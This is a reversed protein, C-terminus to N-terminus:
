YHTRMGLPHKSVRVKAIASESGAIKWNKGNTDEFALSKLESDNHNNEDRFKAMPGDFKGLKYEYSESEALTVIELAPNLYFKSISGDFYEGVIFKLSLNRQGCNVVEVHVYSYEDSEYHKRSCIHTKLRGNSKWVVYLSVFLSLVAVVSGIITLNSEM